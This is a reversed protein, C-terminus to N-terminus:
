RLLPSGPGASATGGQGTWEDRLISDMLQDVVQGEKIASQRVVAECLHGAKALTALLAAGAGPLAALWFLLDTFHRISSALIAVGGVHGAWLAPIAPRRPLGAINKHYVCASTNQTM